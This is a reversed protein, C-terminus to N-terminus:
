RRWTWAADAYRTANTEAAAAEEDSLVGPTVEAGFTWEFGSVLAALLTARRPPEELVDALAIGGSVAHHSRGTARAAEVDTTGLRLEEVVHQEDVLLLSGHQLLAGGDRWQASGVLKRGEVTVEGPLPDRFCARPTPRPARTRRGPSGEDAGCVARVGLERLGAALARNIRGYTERLSGWTGVPAAVSYTLERHHYVARGGTPRRVVDIGREAAARADYAGRAEQNRGFSLCGPEWGYLRLTVRNAGDPSGASRMLAEDVAMNRVGPLAEDILLRINEM